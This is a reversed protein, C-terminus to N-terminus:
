GRQNLARQRLTDVTEDALPSDPEGQYVGKDHYLVRGQEQENCGAIALMAASLAVATLLRTKGGM